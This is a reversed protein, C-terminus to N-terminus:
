LRRRRVQAIEMPGIADAVQGAWKDIKNFGHYAAKAVHEGLGKGSKHSVHHQKPAKVHRLKSRRPKKTVSASAASGSLMKKREKKSCLKVWLKEGMEANCTAGAKRLVHWFQEESHGKRKYYECFESWDGKRDRPLRKLGAKGLRKHFSRKDHPCCCEHGDGCKQRYQQDSLEPNHEGSDKQGGKCAAATVQVKECDVDNKLKKCLFEKCHDAKGRKLVLDKHFSASSSECDCGEEEWSARKRKMEKYGHKGLTAKSDQKNKRNWLGSLKDLIKTCVEDDAPDSTFGWRTRSATTASAFLVFCIFLLVPSVFKM